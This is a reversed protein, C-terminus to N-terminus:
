THTFYWPERNQTRANASFDERLKPTILVSEGYQLHRMIDQFNIRRIEVKRTPRGENALFLLSFGVLLNTNEILRESINGREDDQILLTKKTEAVGM